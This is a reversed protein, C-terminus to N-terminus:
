KAHRRRSKGLGLSPCESYAFSDPKGVLKTDNKEYALCSENVLDIITKVLHRCAGCYLGVYFFFKISIYTKNNKINIESLLSANRKKKRKLNVPVRHHPM